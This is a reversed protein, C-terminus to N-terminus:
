VLDDESGSDPKRRRSAFRAFDEFLSDIVAVFEGLKPSDVLQDAQEYLFREVEGPPFSGTEQLHSLLWAMVLRQADIQEQLQQLRVETRLMFEHLKEM